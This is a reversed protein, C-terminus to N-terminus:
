RYWVKLAGWSPREDGVPNELCETAMNDLHLITGPQVVFTITHTAGDCEGANEHNEGPGVTSPPIGVPPEWLDDPNSLSPDDVYVGFGSYIGWAAGSYTYEIRCLNDPIIDCYFVFTVTIPGPHNLADIRLMNGSGNGLAPAGAFGQNDPVIQVGPSGPPTVAGGGNYPGLPQSDFDSGVVFALACPAACLLLLLCSVIAAIRM